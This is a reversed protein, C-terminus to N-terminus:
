DYGGPKWFDKVLSTPTKIVMPAIELMAEDNGNGVIGENAANRERAQRRARTGGSESEKPHSHAFVLIVDRTPSWNFKFRFHDTGGKGAQDDILDRIEGTRRNLIVVMGKERAGIRVSARSIWTIAREVAARRITRNGDVISAPSVTKGFSGPKGRNKGGSKGPKGYTGPKGPKTGYLGPKGYRKGIPKGFAKSFAEELTKGEYRM